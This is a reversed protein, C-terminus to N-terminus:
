PYNIEEWAISTEIVALVGVGTAAMGFFCGPPVIIQGAVDESTSYLGAGVAVGQPPGAIPGYVLMAPTAAPSAIVAVNVIPTMASGAQSNNIVGSRITGTQTSGSQLGCYFNWMLPGASTGQSLATKVNLVVAAKGSSLPNYFGNLFQETGMAGGSVNASVVTNSSQLIFVNGRYAAEQYRGHAETNVLAGSKDNRANSVQGDQATIVGTRLMDAVSVQAFGIQAVSVLLTAILPILKKM